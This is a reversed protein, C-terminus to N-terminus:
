EDESMDNLMKTGEFFVEDYRPAPNPAVRVSQRIVAFETPKGCEPCVYVNGYM